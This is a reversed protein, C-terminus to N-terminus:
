LFDVKFDAFPSPAYTNAPVMSNFTVNSTTVQRFASEPFITTLRAANWGADISSDLEVPAVLLWLIKTEFFLCLLM